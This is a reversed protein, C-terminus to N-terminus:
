IIVGWDVFDIITGLSPNTNLPVVTWMTRTEVTANKPSHMGYIHQLIKMTAVHLEHSSKIRHETSPRHVWEIKEAIVVSDTPVDDLAYSRPMHEVQTSSYLWLRKHVINTERVRLSIHPNALVAYWLKQDTAYSGCDALTTCSSKAEYPSPPWIIKKELKTRLESAPFRYARPANIRGEM